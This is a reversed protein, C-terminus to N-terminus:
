KEINTLLCGYLYVDNTFKLKTYMKTGHQKNPDVNPDRIVSNM